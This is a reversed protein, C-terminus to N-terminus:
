KREVGYTYIYFHSDKSTSRFYEVITGFFNVMKQMMYTMERRNPESVHKKLTCVFKDIDEVDRYIVIMYDEYIIEDVNMLACFPCKEDRNSDYKGYRLM